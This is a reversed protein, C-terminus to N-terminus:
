KRPVTAPATYKFVGRENGRHGYSRAETAPGFVAGKGARALLQAPTFTEGVKADRPLRSALHHNVVIPDNAPNGAYPHKCWIKDPTVVDKDFDTVVDDPLDPCVWQGAMPSIEESAPPLTPEPPSFLRRVWDKVGQNRTYVLGSCVASVVCVLLSCSVAICLVFSEGRGNGM